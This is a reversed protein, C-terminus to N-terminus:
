PQFGDGKSPSGFPPLTGDDVLEGDPAGQASGLLGAEDPFSSMAPGHSPRVQSRLAVSGRAVRESDKVVGLLSRRKPARDPIVCAWILSKLARGLSIPSQAARLLSSAAAPVDPWQSRNPSEPM